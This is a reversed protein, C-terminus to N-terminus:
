ILDFWIAFWNVTNWIVDKCRLDFEFHNLDRKIGITILIHGDSSLVYSLLGVFNTCVTFEGIVVIHVCEVWFVCISAHCTHNRQPTFQWMLVDDCNQLGFLHFYQISAPGRNCAPDRM